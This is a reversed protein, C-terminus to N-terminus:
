TIILEFLYKFLFDLSTILILFFGSFILVALTLSWTAKRTPWRVQRLESWAGKLYEVIKGNKATKATRQRKVTPKKMLKSSKAPKADTAKVRTINEKEAM